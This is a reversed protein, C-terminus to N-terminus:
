LDTTLHLIRIWHFFTISGSGAPWFDVSSGPDEDRIAGLLFEKIFGGEGKNIVCKEGGYHTTFMNIRNLCSLLSREEIGRGSWDRASSRSLNAFTETNHIRFRGNLLSFASAWNLIALVLM